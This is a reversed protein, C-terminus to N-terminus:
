AEPAAAKATDLLLCVQALSAAHEVMQPIQLLLESALRVM